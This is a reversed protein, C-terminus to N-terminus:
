FDSISLLSLKFKKKTTENVTIGEVTQLMERSGLIKVATRNDRIAHFAAALLWKPNEDCTKVVDSWKNISLYLLTEIQLPYERKSSEMQQCSYGLHM